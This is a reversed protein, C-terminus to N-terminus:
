PKPIVALPSITPFDYRGCVTGVVPQGGRWVQTVWGLWANLQVAPVIVSRVGPVWFKLVAAATLVAPSMTPVTFPLPNTSCLPFIVSRPGPVAAPM